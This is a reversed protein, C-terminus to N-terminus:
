WTIRKAIYLNGAQILLLFSPKAKLDQLLVAGLGIDSAGTRLIFPVGSQVVPLYLVPSPRNKLTQFAKKMTIM